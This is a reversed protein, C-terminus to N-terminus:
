SSVPAMALRGTRPFTIRRYEEIGGPRRLLSAARRLADDVDIIEDGLKQLVEAVIQDQVARFRRQRDLRERDTAHKHASIFGDRLEEFLRSRELSILRRKSFDGVFAVLERGAAEGELKFALGAESWPLPVAVPGLPADKALTMTATAAREGDDTRCCGDCECGPQWINNRRWFFVEPFGLVYRCAKAFFMRVAQSGETAAQSLAFRAARITDTTPRRDEGHLPRLTEEPRLRAYLRFAEPWEGAQAYLDGLFRNDFFRTACRTMIPSAFELTGNRRVALGSLTLAGPPEAPRRLPTPRGRLLRRLLPWVERELPVLRLAHRLLDSDQLGLESPDMCSEAISDPSLSVSSSNVKARQQSGLVAATVLKWLLASNGGTERWMTHRASDGPDPFSLSRFIGSIVENFCEADYGQLLYQRSVFDTVTSAPGHVFEGLDYEGCILAVTRRESALHRLEELLQRALHRALSDVGSLLLYSCEDFGDIPGLLRNNADSVWSHSLGAAAAVIAQIEAPRAIPAQQQLDVRLVPGSQSDTLAEHAHSRLFDKGSGPCGLAIVSRGAQLDM